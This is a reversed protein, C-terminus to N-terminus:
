LHPVVQLVYTQYLRGLTHRVRCNRTASSRSMQFATYILVSDGVGINWTCLTARTRDTITLSM